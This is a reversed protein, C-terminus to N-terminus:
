LDADPWFFNTSIPLDVGEVVNGSATTVTVKLNLDPTIKSIFERLARVDRALMNDAFERITAIERDGSVSTIMHKLRTTVTTTSQPNIKKMGEIEKEIKNEDGHTLLKFTVVIKSVPLSITFENKGPTYM